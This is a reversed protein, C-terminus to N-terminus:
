TIYTHVTTDVIVVSNDHPLSEQLFLFLERTEAKRKQVKGGTDEVYAPPGAVKAM